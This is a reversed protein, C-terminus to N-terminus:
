GQPQCKRWGRKKGAGPQQAVVRTLRAPEIRWKKEYLLFPLECKMLGVIRVEVGGCRQKEIGKKRSLRIPYAVPLNV